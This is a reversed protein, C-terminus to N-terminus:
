CYLLPKERGIEWRQEGAVWHLLRLVLRVLQYRNQDGFRRGNHRHQHLAEVLQFPLECSNSLPKVFQMRSIARREDM